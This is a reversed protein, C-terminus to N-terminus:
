STRHSNVQLKRYVARSHNRVTDLSIVCRDTILKYSLGDEIGRTIERGGRVPDRERARHRYVREAHAGACRTSTPYCRCRARTWRTWFHKWRISELGYEFEPQARLYEQLAERIPDPRRNDSAHHSLCLVSTAVRGVRRYSM